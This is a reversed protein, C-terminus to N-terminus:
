GNNENNNKDKDKDDVEVESIMGSSMIDDDSASESCHDSDPADTSGITDLGNCHTKYKSVIGPLHPFLQRVEWFGSCQKSVRCRIMAKRDLNMGDVDRQENM